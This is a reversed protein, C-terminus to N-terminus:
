LNTLSRWPLHEPLTGNLGANLGVNFNVFDLTANSQMWAAPFLPGSLYNSSLYASPALQPLPPPPLPTLGAASGPRPRM